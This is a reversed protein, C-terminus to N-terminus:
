IKKGLRLGSTFFYLGLDSTSWRLMVVSLSPTKRWMLELSFKHKRHYPVEIHLYRGFQSSTAEQLWYIWNLFNYPSIEADESDASLFDTLWFGADVFIRWSGRYLSSCDQLYEFFGVAFSTSDRSYRCNQCTTLPIWLIFISNEVVTCFCLTYINLGSDWNAVSCFHPSKRERKECTM